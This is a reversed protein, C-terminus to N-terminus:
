QINKTFQSYHLCYRYCDDRLGLLNNGIYVCIILKTEYYNHRLKWSFSRPYLITWNVISDFWPLMSYVQKYLNLTCPRGTLSCHLYNTTCENRSITGWALMRCKLNVPGSRYVNIIDCVTKPPFMNRFFVTVISWISLNNVWIM